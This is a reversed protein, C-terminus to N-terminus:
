KEIQRNERCVAFPDEFMRWEEWDNKQSDRREEFLVPGKMYEGSRGTM